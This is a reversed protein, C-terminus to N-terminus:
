EGFRARVIAALYALGANLYPWVGKVKSEGYGRPLLVYAEETVRFGRRIARYVVDVFYSGHAGEFRAGWVAKKKAVIFGSTYDTIGGGLVRRALFNVLWSFWKGHKEGRMDKGGKVFYSGVVVDYKKLKAAMEPLKEPPMSLDADMWAVVEGKAMEVGKKIAGPLGKEGKRMVLRLNKVRRQLRRVEDGTGDLSDDDVVVIEFDRKLAKVTRWVLEKVNGKENYTPLIVSIM